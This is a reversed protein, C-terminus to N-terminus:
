GQHYGRSYTKAQNAQNYARCIDWWIKIHHDPNITQFIGTNDRGQPRGKHILQAQVSTSLGVLLIIFVKKTAFAKM